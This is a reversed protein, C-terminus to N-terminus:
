KSGRHDKLWSVAEDTTIFFQSPLSKSSLKIMVRAIMRTAANAGVFATHTVGAKCMSENQIKRTERSEMPGAQSLDVLLQQFPRNEFAKRLLTESKLAEETAYAGIIEFVLIDNGEDFWLKHKM